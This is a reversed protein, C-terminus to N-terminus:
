LLQAFLATSSESWAWIRFSKLMHMWFSHRTHGFGAETGGCGDELVLANGNVTHASLHLWLNEAETVAKRLNHISAVDVEVNLAGSLAKEVASIERQIRLRPLPAWAPEGNAARTLVCLPSAHLLLLRTPNSVSRENLDNRGEVVEAAAATEAAQVLDSLQLMGRRPSSLVGPRMRCVMDFYMAQLRRVAKSEESEHFNSGLSGDDIDFLEDADSSKVLYAVCASIVCLLAFDIRRRPPM